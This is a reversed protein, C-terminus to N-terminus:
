LSTLARMEYPLGEVQASLAVLIWALTPRRDARAWGSSCPSRKRVM